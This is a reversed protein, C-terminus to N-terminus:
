LALTLQGAKQAAEQATVPIGVVCAFTRLYSKRGRGKVLRPAFSILLRGGGSILLASTRNVLDPDEPTNEVVADHFRVEGTGSTLRARFRLTDGAIKILGQPEVAFNYPRSAATKRAAPALRTARQATM